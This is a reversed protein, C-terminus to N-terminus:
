APGNITTNRVRVGPLIEVNVLSDSENLGVDLGFNLQTSNGSRTEQLIVDEASMTISPVLLASDYSICGTLSLYIILLM